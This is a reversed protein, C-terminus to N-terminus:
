DAAASQDTSKVPQWGEPVWRFLMVSIPRQAKKAAEKVFAGIADLAIPEAGRGYVVFDTAPVAVVLQGGMKKALAAWEDHLLFRSSDYFDGTIYGIGNAPLDKTVADFPRIAAIVNQKGLAIAEDESLGLKELQTGTLLGIGHSRDVVCVLWLDGAISRAIPKAEPKATGTRLAGEVYASSRVVVRIDQRRVPTGTEKLAAVSNAVFERMARDCNQPERVCYDHVNGLNMAFSQPDSEIALLLPGKITVKAEPLAESFAAAAYTTLGNADTPVPATRACSALVATALIVAKACARGVRATPMSDEHALKTTCEICLDDAFDDRRV